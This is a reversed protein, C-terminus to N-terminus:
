DYVGRHKNTLMLLLDVYTKSLEIKMLLLSWIIRNSKRWVFNLKRNSKWYLWIILIIKDVLGWIIRKSLILGMNNNWPKALLWEHLHRKTVWVAVGWPTIEM